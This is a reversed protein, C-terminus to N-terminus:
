SAPQHLPSIGKETREQNQDQRRLPKAGIRLLGTEEALREGFPRFLKPTLVRADTAAGGEGEAFDAEGRHLGDGLQRFQELVPVGADALSRGAGQAVDPQSAPFPRQWAQHLHQSM